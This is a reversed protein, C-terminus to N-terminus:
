PRNVILEAICTLAAEFLIGHANQVALIRVAFLQDLASRYHQVIKVVVAPFSEFSKLFQQIDVADRVFYIGADDSTQIVVSLGSELEYRVLQAGLGRDAAAATVVM